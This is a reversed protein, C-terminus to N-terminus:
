LVKALFRRLEATSPSKLMKEPSGDETIRGNHIFYIWDAVERAFGLEHTVVIMTMGSVALRRMMDLVGKVNEPDLASTAEDFLMVRPDMALARAIAVRQQQGGSLESPRSHKLHLIGVETLVSDVRAEADTKGLRKVHRLALGVNEGVSMHPFLNFQQFVMGIRSRAENLDTALDTMEVGDVLIRGSTPSEMRNICRLLTSKGSGSVGILCVVQSPMVRLSVGKLVEVNGYAACVGQMEVIPSDAKQKGTM